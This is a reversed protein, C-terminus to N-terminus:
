VNKVKARARGMIGLGALGSMLLLLGAPLPVAEVKKSVKIVYEFANDSNDSFVATVFNLGSLLITVYGKGEIASGVGELAAKQLVDFANITDGGNTGGILTILNRGTPDSDPSGWMIQFDSTLQEFTYSVSGNKEVATYTCVGGCAIPAGAITTYPTLRVGSIDTAGTVNQEVAGLATGAPNLTAGLVTNDIAAITIPAAMASSASVMLAMGTTAMLFKLTKTM